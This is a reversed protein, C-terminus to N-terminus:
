GPPTVRLTAKGGTVADLTITYPGVAATEGPRITVARGGAVQLGVGAASIEAITVAPGSGCTLTTTGNVTSVRSSGGRSSVSGRGVTVTCT